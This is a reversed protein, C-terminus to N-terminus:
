RAESALREFMDNLFSNMIVMAKVSIGMDPHVQQLVKYIYSSYSFPISKKTLLSPVEANTVNDEPKNPTEELSLNSLQEGISMGIKDNYQEQTILGNELLIQLKLGEMETTDRITSLM